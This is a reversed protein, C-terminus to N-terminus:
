VQKAKLPVAPVGEETFPGDYEEVCEAGAFMEITDNEFVGALENAHQEEGNAAEYCNLLLENYRSLLNDRILGFVETYFVEAKEFAKEQARTLAIHKGLEEDFTDRSNCTAKGRVTWYVYEKSDNEFDVVYDLSRVYKRFPAFDWLLNDYEPLKNLNIRFTLVSVCIGKKANVYEKHTVYEVHTKNRSM